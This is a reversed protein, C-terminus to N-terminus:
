AEDSVPRGVVTLARGRRRHASIAVQSIDM